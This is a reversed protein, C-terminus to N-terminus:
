NFRPNSLSVSDATLRNGKYSTFDVLTEVTFLSPSIIMVDDDDDNIHHHHRRYIHFSFPIQLVKM